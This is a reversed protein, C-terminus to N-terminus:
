RKLSVTGGNITVAGADRLKYAANKTTGYARKLLHSLNTFGMEGHILLADIISAPVGPFTNKFSQWRPDDSGQSAVIAAPGSGIPAEGVALEIEGFLARLGRYLPSLIRRLNEITRELGKQKRTADELDRRLSRNEDELRQVERRWEQVSGDPDDELVAGELQLPRAM